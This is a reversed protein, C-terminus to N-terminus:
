RKAKKGGRRQTERLRPFFFTFMGGRAAGARSSQVVRRSPNIRQPKKRRHRPDNKIKKEKQSSKASNFRFGM